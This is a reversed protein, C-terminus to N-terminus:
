LRVYSMILLFNIHALIFVVYFLKYLSLQIYAGHGQVAFNGRKRYKLLIYPLTSFIHMGITRDGYAM